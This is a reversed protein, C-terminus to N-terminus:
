VLRYRRNETDIIGKEFLSRLEKYVKKAPQGTKEAIEVLTLPKDSSKLASVVIEELKGM